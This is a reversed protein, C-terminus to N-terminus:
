RSYTHRVQPAFPDGIGHMAGSTLPAAPPGGPLTFGDKDGLTIGLNAGNTFWSTPVEVWVGSGAPFRPVYLTGDITKTAPLTAAGLTALTTHGEESDWWTKNHIYIESKHLTAGNLADPMTKGLEGADTAETAGGGFLIAANEIQIPDAFWYWLDTLGDSGPIAAGTGDYRRSATATWTSQYLVTGAGDYDSGASGAILPGVDEVYLLGGFRQPTAGLDGEFSMRFKASRDTAVSHIAECRADPSFWTEPAPPTTATYGVQPSAPTPTASGEAYRIRMHTIGGVVNARLRAVVVVRYRRGALLNATLMYSPTETATPRVPSFDSLPIERLAVIGRPLNDLWGPVVGGGLTGLLDTGRISLSRAAAVKRGSVDGLSNIGGLIVGDQDAIGVATELSTVTTTAYPVGNPGVRYVYLGTDNMETRAGDIDGAVFAGGPAIPWQTKVHGDDGVVETVELGDGDWDLLVTEAADPDERVGEPLRMRLSLPVSAEVAEGDDDLRVTAVTRVKPPHLELRDGVDVVLPAALTVVDADPDAAVYDVVQGFLSLQGGDTDLPGADDVAVSTGTSAAVVEAGVRHTTVDAIKAHESM